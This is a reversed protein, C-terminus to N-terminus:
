GFYPRRPKPYLAAKTIQSTLNREEKKKKHTHTHHINIYHINVKGHMRDHETVLLYPIHVWKSTKNALQSPCYWWFSLVNYATYYTKWCSIHFSLLPLSWAWLHLSSHYETYSHLYLPLHPPILLAFSLSLCVPPRTWIFSSTHSVFFIGPM